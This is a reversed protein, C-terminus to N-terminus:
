FAAPPHLVHRFGVHILGFQRRLDDANKLRGRQTGARLLAIDNAVSDAAIGELETGDDEVAAGEPAQQLRAVSVHLDLIQLTVQEARRATTELIPVRAHRDAPRLALLWLRASCRPLRRCNARM